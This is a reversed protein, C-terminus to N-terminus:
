LHGWKMGSRIRNVHSESVKHKRALDACVGFYKPVSRIALVDAATLRASFVAEGRVHRARGKRLMDHCNDAPTGLFLHDPNICAPTDCRHCVFVGSPIPGRHLTWSLRHATWSVGDVRLHGYGFETACREWLWCGSNPEPIYCSPLHELAAMGRPRRRGYRQNPRPNRPNRTM